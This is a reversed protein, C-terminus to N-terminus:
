RHTNSVDRADFLVRDQRDMLGPKLEHGVTEEVVIRGAVKRLLKFLDARKTAALCARVDRRIYTPLLNCIVIRSGTWPSNGFKASHPPKQPRLTLFCLRSSNVPPQLILPCNVFTPRFLVYCSTVDCRNVNDQAM